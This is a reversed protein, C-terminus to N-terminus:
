GPAQLARPPPGGLTETLFYYRGQTGPVSSLSSIIPSPASTALHDGILASSRSCLAAEPSLTAPPLLGPIAGGLTLALAASPPLGLQSPGAMWRSVCMTWSTHARLRGPGSQGLVWRPGVAPPLIGVGPGSPALHQGLPDAGPFISHTSSAVFATYSPGRTPGPRAESTPPATWLRGGVTSPPRQTLPLAPSASPSFPLTREQTPAM